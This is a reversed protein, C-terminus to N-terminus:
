AETQLLKEVDEKAEAEPAPAAKKPFPKGRPAPKAAKAKPEDKENMRALLEELKGSLDCVRSELAKKEKELTSVYANFQNGTVAANQREIYDKARRRNDLGGMGLLQAEGETLRALAEITKIHVSGYQEVISPDYPFLLELPTGITEGNVGDYFANWEAPFQKVHSNGNPALSQIEWKQTESNFIVKDRIRQRGVSRGLDNRWNLYVFNEFVKKGEQQSRFPMFVKEVTFWVQCQDPPTDDSLDHDQFSSLGKIAIQPITM